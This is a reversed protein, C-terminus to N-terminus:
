CGEEAWATNLTTGWVNYCKSFPMDFNLSFVSRWIGFFVLNEVLLNACCSGTPLEITKAQGVPFNDANYEVYNGNLYFAIRFKAV